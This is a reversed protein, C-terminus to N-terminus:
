NPQLGPLVNQIETQVTEATWGSMADFSNGNTILTLVIRLGFYYGCAPPIGLSNDEAGLYARKIEQDSTYLNKQVDAKLEEFRTVIEDVREGPFALLESYTHSGPYLHLQAYTAMGEAWIGWYLGGQISFDKGFHYLHFQEHAITFDLQMNGTQFYELGLALITGGNLDTAKGQFSFSVTLFYDCGPAFAPFKSEFAVRGDLIKQVAVPDLLRLSDLKVPVISTWFETICWQKYNERETGSLNRYIVQNFFDSWKSELMSDWLSRRTIDPEGAGRDAYAFFDPVLDYLFHGDGLDYRAITSNHSPNSPTGDEDSCHFCSVSLILILPILLCSEHVKM